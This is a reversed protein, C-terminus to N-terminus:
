YCNQILGISQGGDNVRCGFECIVEDIKGDRDNEEISVNPHIDRDPLHVFEINNPNFILMCKALDGENMAQHNVLEMAFTQTRIMKTNVGFERLTTKADGVDINYVTKDAVMDDIRGCIDFGALCIMPDGEGCVSMARPIETKLKFSTMSGVMDYSCAAWNLLGRSTTFSSTLAAGGSTTNGSSARNGFLFGREIKEYFRVLNIMKLLKFYDKTAYFESKLLTNSIAVPERVIQTCNYVNDFDKSIMSPNVSNEPYATASIGLTTGAAPNFATAGFSTVECTTTDTISDIRASQSTGTSSDFYYLTDYIKLQATSNVVLTTSSFSTVTVTKSWDTFNFCEYRQQSVEAKKIKGSSMSVDSKGVEMEELLAILKLNRAYNLKIYDLVDRKNHQTSSFTPVTQPVPSSVTGRYVTM